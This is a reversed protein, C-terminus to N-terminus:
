GSGNLVVPMGAKVVMDIDKSFCTGAPIELRGNGEIDIRVSVGDAVSVNEGVWVKAASSSNEGIVRGAPDYDIDGYPSEARILLAASEGLKLGPSFPPMQVVASHRACLYLRSGEAFFWGTALGKRELSDEDMGLCPHLEIYAAAEGDKEAVIGGLGRILKAAQEVLARFTTQVSDRGIVAKTPIFIKEREDQFVFVREPDLLSALHQNLMEFTSSEIRREGITVPKGTYITGPLDARVASLSVINSNIHAGNFRLQGSTDKEASLRPDLVSYEIVDIRNDKDHRCIMGVKESPESRSVISLTFASKKRLHYGLRKPYLPSFAANDVNGMVINRIGKEKLRDLTNRGDDGVRLLAGYIGGHGDGTWLLSGDPKVILDGDGDLRPIEGQPLLIVAEKPMGWLGDSELWEATHRHTIGSTMMVAVPLAGCSIGTELCEAIVRQYFTLGQVPSIPFLGKPASHDAFGNRLCENVVPTATIIKDWEKLFRTGAGGAFLGVAWEGKGLSEWGLETDSLRYEDQDPDANVPSLAGPRPLADEPNALVRRQREVHGFDLGSVEDLFSEMEEPGAKDLYKNFVGSLGSSILRESAKQLDRRRDLVEALSPFRRRLEALTM